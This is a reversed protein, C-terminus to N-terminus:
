LIIKSMCACGSMKNFCVCVCYCWCVSVTWWGVTLIPKVKTGECHQSLEDDIIIESTCKCVCVDTCVCAYTFTGMCASMCLCVCKCHLGREYM